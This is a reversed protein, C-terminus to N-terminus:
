KLGVAEIRRNAARGRATFNPLRPSESGRGTVLIRSRPVGLEILRDVAAQAMSLSLRSDATADHTADVHGVIRLRAQPAAALAVALDALGSDRQLQATRGVFAVDEVIFTEADLLQQVWEKQRPTVALPRPAAAVPPAAAPPPAPAPPPPRPAPAAQAVAYTRLSAIRKRDFCAVGGRSGGLRLFLEHTSDALTRRVADEVTEGPRPKVAITSAYLLERAPSLALRVSVVLGTEASASSGEVTGYFAADAGVLQALEMALAPPIGEPLEVPTDRFIGRLEKVPFVHTGSAGIGALLAATAADAALPANSANELPAVIVCRVRALEAARFIGLEASVVAPAGATRETACASLLLTVAASILLRM